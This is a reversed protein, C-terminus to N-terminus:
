LGVAPDSAVAVIATGVGTFPVSTVLNKSASKVAIVGEGTGASVSSITHPIPFVVPLVIAL